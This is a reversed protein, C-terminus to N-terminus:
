SKGGRLPGYTKLKEGNKAMEEEDLVACAEGTAKAKLYVECCFELQEALALARELTQACVNFGHNALLVANRGEMARLSNEALEESGYPAYAACRIDSGGGLAVLYDIAPLPQNLVSLATAYPSHLHVMADLDERNRYVVAHMEYESTPAGRGALVKGELDMVLVDQPKMKFYPLGTPSTVMLGRERNYISLNGATGRTLGQSLMLRGYKVIERRERALLM